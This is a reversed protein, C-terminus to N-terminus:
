LHDAARYKITITDLPNLVGVGTLQIGGQDSVQNGNQDYGSRPSPNSASTASDVIAISAQNYEHNLNTSDVKLEAVYCASVPERILVIISSGDIRYLGFDSGDIMLEQASLARKATLENKPVYGVSM